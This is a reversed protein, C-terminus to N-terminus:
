TMNFHLQKSISHMVKQSTGKVEKRSVQLKSLQSNMQLKALNRGETHLPSERQNRLAGASLTPDLPAVPTISGPGESWPLGTITIIQKLYFVGEFFQSESAICSCLDINQHQLSYALM